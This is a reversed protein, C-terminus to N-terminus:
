VGCFPLPAARRRLSHIALLEAEDAGELEARALETRATEYKNRLERNYAAVGDQAQSWNVKLERFTPTQRAIEEINALGIRITEPDDDPAAAVVTPQFMGVGALTCLSGVVGGIAAILAIIVPANRKM